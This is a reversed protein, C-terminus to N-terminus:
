MLFYLIVNSAPSCPVIELSSLVMLRASPAISDLNSIGVTSTQSPHFNVPQAGEGKPWLTFELMVKIAWYSSTTKSAGATGGIDGSGEIGKSEGVSSGIFSGSSTKKLQRKSAPSCPEILPEDENLFAALVVKDLPSIGITVGLM